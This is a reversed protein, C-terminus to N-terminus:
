KRYQKPAKGYTKKYVRSFYNYDAFGVDRAIQSVRRDTTKLLKRATQMRRRLIYRSVGMNAESKFIDYLRTRGVGLVGCLQEPSIDESLHNEIHTKAAEFLRNSEPVILEKLIIYSTCVEMIKAAATIEDSSKYGIVDIACKLDDSDLGYTTTWKDINNYLDSKDSVDTIQGFM